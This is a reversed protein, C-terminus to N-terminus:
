GFAVNSNRHIFIPVPLQPDVVFMDPPLVTVMSRGSPEECQTAVIKLHSVLFNSHALSPVLVCVIVDAYLVLKRFKLWEM